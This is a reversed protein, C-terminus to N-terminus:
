LLVSCKQTNKKFEKMQVIKKINSIIIMSSEQHYDHM